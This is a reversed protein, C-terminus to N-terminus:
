TNRPPMTSNPTEATTNCRRRVIEWLTDKAYHPLSNTKHFIRISTNGGQTLRTGLTQFAASRLILVLGEYLATTLNTIALAFACQWELGRAPVCTSLKRPVM